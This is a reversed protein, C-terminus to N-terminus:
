RDSTMPSLVPWHSSPSLTDGNGGSILLLVPGAGCREYYINAGSRALTQSSM